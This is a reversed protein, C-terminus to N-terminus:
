HMRSMEEILKLVEEPNKNHNDGPLQIGHLIEIAESRPLDLVSEVLDGDIFGFKTVTTKENSVSRYERHENRLCNYVRSAVAKEVATFFQFFPKDLQLVIGISGEVTGYLISHSIPITVSEVCASVLQGRRFVNVMEGLYYSGNEMLRQREEGGVSATEKEVNFLNYNSEAGLFSDAHIIECATMWRPSCNRATEELASEMSKYSVLCLSRMLDGVLLLDGS